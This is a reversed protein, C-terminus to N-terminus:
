QRHIAWSPPDSAPFSEESAEDVTDMGESPEEVAGTVDAASATQEDQPERREEREVDSALEAERQDGMGLGHPENQDRDPM